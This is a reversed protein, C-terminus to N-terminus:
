MTKGKGKGRGKEGKQGSTPRSQNKMSQNKVGSSSSQGSSGAVQTSKHPCDKMWHDASGCYYCANEAPSKGTAQKQSNFKDKGKQRCLM